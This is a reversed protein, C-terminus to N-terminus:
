GTLFGRIEVGAFVLVGFGIFLCMIGVVTSGRKTTVPERLFDSEYTVEAQTKITKLGAYIWWLGFAVLFILVLYGTIGPIDLALRKGDFDPLPLKDQM